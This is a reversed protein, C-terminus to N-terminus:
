LKSRASYKELSTLVMKILKQVEDETNHAHLIIRIREEGKPVTPTRIPYVDLGGVDRLYKSVRVCDRNGPLVLAQIPSPSPLLKIGTSLLNLASLGNSIESRFLKVWRFLTDRRKEGDLGMM